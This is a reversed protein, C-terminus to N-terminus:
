RSVSPIKGVYSASSSPMSQSAYPGPLSGRQSCQPMWEPKSGDDANSDDFLRFSVTRLTAHVSVPQGEGARRGRLLADRLPEAQAGHADAHARRVAHRVARSTENPSAPANCSPSARRRRARRSARRRRARRSATPPVGAEADGTRAVAVTSPESASTCSAASRRAAARPSRRRRPRCPSRRARACRGARRHRARRRRRRRRARDFADVRGHMASPRVSTTPSSRQTAVRLAAVRTREIRSATTPAARARSPPRPM